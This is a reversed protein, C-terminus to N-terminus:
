DMMIKDSEMKVDGLNENAKQPVVTSMTMYGKDQMRLDRSKIEVGSSDGHIVRVVGDVEM